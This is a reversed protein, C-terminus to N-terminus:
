VCQPLYFEFASYWITVQSTLTPIPADIRDELLEVLDIDVAASLDHVEDAGRGLDSSGQNARAQTAMGCM